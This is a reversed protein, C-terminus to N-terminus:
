RLKELERRANRNFIDELGLRGRNQELDESAAVSKDSTGFSPSGKADPTKKKKVAKPLEGTKPDRGTVKRFVGVLKALGTESRYEMENEIAWEALAKEEEGQVSLQSRINGQQQGAVIKRELNAIKTEMARTTKSLERMSKRQAEGMRNLPEVLDEFAPDVTGFDFPVDDVDETDATKGKLAAVQAEAAEARHRLQQAEIAQLRQETGTDTSDSTQAPVKTSDDVEGTDKEDGDAEPEGVFSALQGEITQDDSAVLGTLIKEDEANEIAEQTEPMKTTM